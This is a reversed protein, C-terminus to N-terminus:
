SWDKDFLNRDVQQRRVEAEGTPDYDSPGYFDVVDTTNPSQLEPDAVGGISNAEIAPFKLHAYGPVVEIKLLIGDQAAAPAAGLGLAGGLLAVAVLSKFSKM